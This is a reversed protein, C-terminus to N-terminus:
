AAMGSTYLGLQFDALRSIRRFVFGVLRSFRHYSCQRSGALWRMRGRDRGGTKGDLPLALRTPFLVFLDLSFGRSSRRREVGIRRGHMSLQACAVREIGV